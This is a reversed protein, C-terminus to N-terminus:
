IAAALARQRAERAPRGFSSRCADCCFPYFRGPQFQPFPGGCDKCADYRRLPRGTRVVAREPHCRPCKRSHGGQAKLRREDYRTGPWSRVLEWALGAELVHALLNAGCGSEHRRLRAPISPSWGLYHGAHGFTAHQATGPILRGRATRRGTAPDIFCVLYIQGMVGYDEAHM